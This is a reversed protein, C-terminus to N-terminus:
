QIRSRVEPMGDSSEFGKEVDRRGELLFRGRRRTGEGHGLPVFEEVDNTAM